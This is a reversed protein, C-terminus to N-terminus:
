YTIASLPWAHITEREVIEVGLREALEVDEHMLINTFIPHTQM